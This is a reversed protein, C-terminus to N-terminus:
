DNWVTLRVAFGDTSRYTVYELDGERVSSGAVAFEVGRYTISTPWQGPMWGLDSAFASKRFPDDTEFVRDETITSAAEAALDNLEAATIAGAKMMRQDSM